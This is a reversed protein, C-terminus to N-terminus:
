VLKVALRRFGGRLGALWLRSLGHGLRARHFPLSLLLFRASGNGSGRLAPVAAGVSSVSSRPVSPEFGDGEAASDTEAPDRPRQRTLTAASAGDPGPKPRSFPVLQSRVSKTQSQKESLCQHPGVEAFSLGTAVVRRVPTLGRAAAYRRTTRSLKRATQAARDLGVASRTRDSADRHARRTAPGALDSRGAGTSYFSRVPRPCNRWM